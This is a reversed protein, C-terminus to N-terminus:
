VASGALQGYEPSQCLTRVVTDIRLPQQAIHHEWQINSGEDIARGLILRYARQVDAITIARDDPHDIARTYAAIAFDAGRARAEALLATQHVALWRAAPTEDPAASPTPKSAPSSVRRAGLWTGVRTAAFLAQWKSAFYAYNFQVKETYDPDQLLSRTSGNEEHLLTVPVQWCRSGRIRAELAYDADMVYAWRYGRDFNGVMDIVERRIYAGGFTIWDVPRAAEYRTDYRYAGAGAQGARLDVGGGVHSIRGHDFAGGACQVYWGGTPNQLPYLLDCGILGAGPLTEVWALLQAYWANGTDDPMPAMDTHVIIVDRDPFARWGQEYAREPGLRDHDQWLHFPLHRGRETDLGFAAVVRARDDEHVYPCLIIPEPRSAEAPWADEPADAVFGGLPTLIRHAFRARQARVYAPLRHEAGIAWVYDPRCFLDQRAAILALPDIATLFASTNFAQHSSDRIKARIGALDSLYSFHWGADSIRQVPETGHRFAYRLADPTDTKLRAYPCVIATILDVEPGAQHVYNLAFCSLDLVLGYSEPDAARIAAIVSARPIEDVDSMVILDDDAADLLGRLIANRQFRERAWADGTEIDDDVVVYRIKHAFSRIRAWQARLRLPKPRGSFTRTAEVIVVADVSTALEHLRIELTDIEGNYLLCDFVRM